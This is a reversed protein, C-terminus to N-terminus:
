LIFPPLVKTSRRAANAAAFPHREERDSVDNRPAERTGSGHKGIRDGSDVSIRIRRLSNRSNAASAAAPAIPGAVDAGACDSAPLCILTTIGNGAPPGVSITARGNACISPSLRLATTMASLL